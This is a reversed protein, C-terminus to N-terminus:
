KRKEEFIEYETQYNNLIELTSFIARYNEFFKQKAEDNDNLFVANNKGMKEYNFDKDQEGEADRLSQKTEELQLQENHQKRKSKLTYIQEMNWDVASEYTKAEKKVPAEDLEIETVTKITVKFNKLKEEEKDHKTM